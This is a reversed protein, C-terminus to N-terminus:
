GSVKSISKKHFLKRQKAINAPATRDTALKLAARAINRQLDCELELQALADEAKTSGGNAPSLRPSIVFETGVKRPVPPLSEGPGM